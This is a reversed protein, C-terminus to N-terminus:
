RIEASEHNEKVVEELRTVVEEIDAKELDLSVLQDVSKIVEPRTGCPKNLKKLLFIVKSKPSLATAEKKVVAADTDEDGTLIGFANCFAYRKAFTTAAAAVQSQSMIDTKNGFPVTM